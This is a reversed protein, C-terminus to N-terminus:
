RPGGLLLFVPIAGGSSRNAVIGTYVALPIYTSIPPTPPTVRGGGGEQPIMGQASLPKCVGVRHALPIRAVIFRASHWSFSGSYIGLNVVATLWM